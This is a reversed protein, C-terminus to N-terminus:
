AAELLGELWEEFASQYCRLENNPLRLMRPSRGNARWKTWTDPSIGLLAVIDAVTLLPGSGIASSAPAAPATRKSTSKAARKPERQKPIAPLAGAAPTVAAFENLDPLNSM